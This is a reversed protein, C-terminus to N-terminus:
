RFGSISMVKSSNTKRGRLFFDGRLSFCYLIYQNFYYYFYLVHLHRNGRFHLESNISETDGAQLSPLQPLGKKESLNM